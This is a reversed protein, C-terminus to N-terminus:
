GAGFGRLLGDTIREAAARDLTVGEIIHAGHWGAIMGDLSMAFDVECGPRLLGSAVIRAAFRRLREHMQRALGKMEEAFRVRDPGFYLGAYFRAIDEHTEMFHFHTMIFEVVVERAPRSDTMFGELREAIEDAFQQMGTKCIGEKSGFYYYLMPKTVGAAEAIERISTGEYGKKAFLKIAARLIGEPSVKQDVSSM